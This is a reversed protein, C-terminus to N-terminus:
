GGAPIAITRTIEKREVDELLEIMIRVALPIKEEEGQEQQWGDKWIHVEEKPDYYYYQFGLSKVNDVVQRPPTSKNQYVQSYNAQWKNITEAQADFCYGVEGVVLDKEKQGMETLVLSAFSISNGRGVFKIETFKFSNRLDGSIKELFINLEEASAGKTLRQWIKIGSNFTSYIALAVVSLMAAVLVTEILTFGSTQKRKNTRCM